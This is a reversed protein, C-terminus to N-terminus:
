EKRSEIDRSGHYRVREYQGSIYWIVNHCCVNRYQYSGRLSEDGRQM